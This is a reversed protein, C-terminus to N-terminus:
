YQQLLSIKYDVDQWGGRRFVRQLWSTGNVFSMSEPPYRFSPELNPENCFRKKWATAHFNVLNTYTCVSWTERFDKSDKADAYRKLADRPPYHLLAASCDLLDKHIHDKHLRFGTLHPIEFTSCAHWLPPMGFSDSATLSPPARSECPDYAAAAVAKWPQDDADPASLFWFPDLVNKVEFQMQSVGYSVQEALMDPWTEHVKVATGMWSGLVNSADEKHLIWPPGSSYFKECEASDKARVCREPDDAGACIDRMQQNTWRNPVCGQGYFAGSGLGPQAAATRWPGATTQLMAAQNSRVDVSGHESLYVPRLWMMDPDVIGIADESPRTKQWWTYISGPRNSAQFARYPKGTTPDVPTETPAYWVKARPHGLQTMAAKQEDRDCGYMIWTFEGPQGVHYASALMLNGQNFM